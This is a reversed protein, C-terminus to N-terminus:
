RGRFVNWNQEKLIELASRVKQGSDERSRRYDFTERLEDDSLEEFQLAAAAIRAGYEERYPAKKMEKYTTYGNGVLFIM